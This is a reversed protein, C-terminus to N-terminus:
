KRAIYTTLSTLLERGYRNRWGVSVTVQLLDNAVDEGIASVATDIEGQPLNELTASVGDYDPSIDDFDHNKIENIKSYALSTAITLHNTQESLLSCEVLLKLMGTFVGALIAATVLLEVLTFASVKTNIKNM